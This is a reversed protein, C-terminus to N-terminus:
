RSPHGAAGRRHHTAASVRFKPATVVIEAPSSWAMQQAGTPLNYDFGRVRYYWTGPSLPLVASTSFTLFGRVGTRSDTRPVFPYGNHSWQVEYVNAGLAPTWAVLPEGYFVNTQAASVLRGRASLGTAFPAKGTTLSPASSIGVREVRGAACVDQPLELDTYVVGKPTVVPAVPVVTWYYGSSPWNVDWLNVPAGVDGSVTVTTGSSGAAGPLSTTPTAAAEQETPSVAEGDFTADAPETGDPLYASAAATIGDATAPMALPGGLRPAYAPSAVVASTFVRNVCTEDTFVYVRFFSAVVGGLSEDGSWTFAPMLEHAPSTPNGDSTVNSITDGLEIPGNAPPPNTSDYITSWPGYATVPVGNQIGLVDDRLARVRWRVTGIWGPSAHFAYFEREDLVNTKVTEIKGADLLWVQYGDAGEVPTWRLLGPVSALPSPPAPPSVDFGFPKSWKSAGGSAFLARVRAYLSYPAGTIWPLTLPPAAVPTLLSDDDYLIGNDRFRSSTSLQFEYKDAGPVPSWAFSPTRHFVTTRPESAVLLFGHLGSPAPVAASSAGALLSGALAALLIGLRVIRM